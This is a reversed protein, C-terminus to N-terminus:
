HFGIAFWAIVLALAAGACSVALVTIVRGSVIGGRAEVPSVEKEMPKEMKTPTAETNSLLVDGAGM